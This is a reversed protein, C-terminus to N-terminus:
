FGGSAARQASTMIATTTASMATIKNGNKDVFGLQQAADVLSLAKGDLILQAALQTDHDTDATIQGSDRLVKYKRALAVDAPNAGPLVKDRNSWWFWAAVGLGVAGVALVSTPVGAVDSFGRYARRRSRRQKRKAM